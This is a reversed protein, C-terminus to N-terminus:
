CRLSVGGHSGISPKVARVRREQRCLDLSAPEIEVQDKVEVAALDDAELHVVGVGGIMRRMQGHRHRGSDAYLRRLAFYQCLIQRLEV